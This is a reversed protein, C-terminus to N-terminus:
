RGMQSGTFSRETAVGRRLHDGMSQAAIRVRRQVRAAHLAHVRRGSGARGFRRPLLAPVAIHARDGSESVEFYLAVSEGQVDKIRDLEKQPISFAHNISTWERLWRRNFEVDHPPFISKIRTYQGQLPTIGAGRDPSTILDHVLRIRDAQTLPDDLFDRAQRPDPRTSSVGHMWDSRREAEVLERLKTEPCRLLVLVENSGKNGSRGVAHLGQSQLTSLLTEYDKTVQAAESKAKIAADFVLILDVGLESTSSSPQQSPKLSSTRTPAVGTEEDGIVRRIQPTLEHARM